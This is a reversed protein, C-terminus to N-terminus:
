SCGVLCGQGPSRRRCHTRCSRAVTGRPAPPLLAPFFTTPPPATTPPHSHRCPLTCTHPLASAAGDPEKRGRNGAKTGMQPGARINSGAHCLCQGDEGEQRQGACLRITSCGGACARRPAAWPGGRRACPWFFPQLAEAHLVDGYCPLRSGKEKCLHLPQM